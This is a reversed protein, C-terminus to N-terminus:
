DANKSCEAKLIEILLSIKEANFVRVGESKLMKVSVGDGPVLRGSFTGDYIIGNGCSPSRDKMLAYRCSLMKATKACEYAGKEYQATVDAGSKSLVRGNVIESPERPTTLGGYAEPCFPVINAIEGLMDMGDIANGKGDYRCNVGLLCASVLVNEKKIM